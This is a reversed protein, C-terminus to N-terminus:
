GVEEKVRFGVRTCISRSGDAINPSTREYDEKMVVFCTAASDFTKQQCRCLRLM